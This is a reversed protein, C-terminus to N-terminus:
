GDDDVMAKREDYCSWLRVQGNEPRDAVAVALGDAGFGCFPVM